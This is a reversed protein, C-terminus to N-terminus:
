HMERPDPLPGSAFHGQDKAEFRRAVVARYRQDAGIAPDHRLRHDALGARMLREAPDHRLDGRAGMDLDQGVEDTAHEIVGSSIPLPLQDTPM